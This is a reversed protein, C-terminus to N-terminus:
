TSHFIHHIFTIHNLTKWTNEENKRAYLWILLNIQSRNSKSYWWLLCALKYNAPNGHISYSKIHTWDQLDKCFVRHSNWHICHHIISHGIGGNRNCINFICMVRGSKQSLGRKSINQTCFIKMFDKAVSFTNRAWHLYTVLVSYLVLIKLM